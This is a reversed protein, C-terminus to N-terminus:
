IRGAWAGGVAAYRAAVRAAVEDPLAGKATHAAAARLHELSTTGVVACAVGPAFAAFRLALEDWALPAPDVALAHMREWTLEADLGAPRDVFRWPANGLPRKAVVGMGRAAARPVSERLAHQDFVNVSCQVAGFFPAARGEAGVAWALGENDGSYAAVRIKGADRARGLAELLGDRRLVDVPCSHLHFVDIHGTRLRACAEDIGRTIAAPTWDETDSAGYGGKTSLVVDDHRSGLLRGLREEASGYSRAADFFTVGLDLAGLVLREADADSVRSEGLGGCGLGLRSVTLGTDGFPVRQLPEM